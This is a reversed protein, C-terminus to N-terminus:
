LFFRPLHDRERLSPFAQNASMTENWTVLGDVGPKHFGFFRLVVGIEIAHVVFGDILDFALTAFDETHLQIVLQLFLEVLSETASLCLALAFSLLELLSECAVQLERHDAALDTKWVQTDLVGRLFVFNCAQIQFEGCPVVMGTVDRPLGTSAKLKIRTGLIRCAKASHAIFVFDCGRNQAKSGHCKGFGTNFVEAAKAVGLVFGAEEVDDRRM